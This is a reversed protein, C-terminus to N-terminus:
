SEVEGRLYKGLLEAWKILVKSEVPLSFRYPYDINGGSGKEQELRKHELVDMPQVIHPQSSRFFPQSSESWQISKIERQEITILKNKVFFERASIGTDEGSNLAKIQDQLENKSKAFLVKICDDAGVRFVKMWQVLSNLSQMYSSKWKWFERESEKEAVRYYM